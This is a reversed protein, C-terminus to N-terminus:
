HREASAPRPVEDREADFYSGIRRTAARGALGFGVGVVAGALVDSLHHVGLIVRSATVAVATGMLPAWEGGRGLFTAAAFSSAAHGSPFSTTRFERGSRAQAVPRPRRVLGKVGVNVVASELGLTIALGGAEIWARRPDVRQDLALRLTGWGFWAAAGEGAWSVYIAGRDVTPRRRLPGVAREGFRDVSDLMTTLDRM